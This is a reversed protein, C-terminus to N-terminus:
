NISKPNIQTMLDVQVIKMDMRIAQIDTIGWFPGLICFFIFTMIEGKIFMDSYIYLSQALPPTRSASKEIECDNEAIKPWFLLIKVNELKQFKRM